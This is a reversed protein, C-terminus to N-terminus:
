AAKGKRNTRRRTRKFAAIYFQFPGEEVVAFGHDPHEAVYERLLKKFQEHTLAPEGECGGWDKQVFWTGEGHYGEGVRKWGKPRHYGLNPFPFGLTVGKGKVETLYLDVEELGFPVYPVKHVRAAERAIEDNLAIIAGISMM